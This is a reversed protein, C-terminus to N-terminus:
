RLKLRATYPDQDSTSGPDRPSNGFRTDTWLPHAIGDTGVAMGSYDGLFDPLCREGFQNSASPYSVKRSVTVPKTWRVGGDPSGVARYTYPDGTGRRDFWGAFVKGGSAGVWAFYQDGGKDSIRHPEDFTLGGDTSRIAVIDSTSGNWDPWVIHVTLGDVAMAPFSPHRYSLGRLTFPHMNALTRTVFTIGGDVSLAYTAFVERSSVSLFSVHVHGLQDVVVTSGQTATTLAVQHLPLWTTGGDLTKSIVISSGSSTFVTWTVYGILPSIPDAAMWVKDHFVTGGEEKVVFSTTWTKGGDTSRSVAISNRIRDRDFAINAYWFTNQPGASIAPDGATDYPGRSKANTRVLKPLMGVTWSKGGDTSRYFGGAGDYRKLAPNFLRYDNAGGVLNLPNEPNVAITTENQAVQKGPACVGTRKGNITARAVVDHSGIVNVNREVSVRM